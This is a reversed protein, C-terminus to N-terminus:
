TRNFKKRRVELLIPYNNILNIFIKREPLIECTLAHIFLCARGGPKTM